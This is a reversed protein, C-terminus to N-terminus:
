EGFRLGGEVEVGVKVWVQIDVVVEVLVQVQVLGLSPVVEAEAQENYM